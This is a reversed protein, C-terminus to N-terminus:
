EGRATWQGTHRGLLEVRVPGDVELTRGDETELRVYLKLDQHLPPRNPWPLDFKLGKGFVGERFRAATEGAAFDWRAVRAHPGKETPDLLVLSVKGRAAVVQGAANRPEVVVIVGEDGLRGDTNHGGTMMRNLTIQTVFEDVPLADDKGGLQFLKGLPRDLPEVASTRRVARPPAEFAGTELPPLEEVEPPARFRSEPPPADDPPLPDILPPGDYPPAQEEPRQTGRLLPPLAQSPQGLDVSPEDPTSRLLPSRPLPSRAAPPQSRDGDGRRLRENEERLADNERRCSELQDCVDELQDELVYLDDEQWRLDRELLDYRYRQGGCGLASAAAAAAVLSWTCLWRPRM